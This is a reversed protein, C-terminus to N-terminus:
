YGARYLGAFISDLPAPWIRKFMRRDEAARRGDRKGRLTETGDGIRHAMLCEPARLFSRHDSHLRWWADWDVNISYGDSFTFGNLHRKNYTISPCPIPSGFSLLLRRRWVSDAVTRNGMALWILGRKVRLLPSTAVRRGNILEEYDTFCIQAEPDTEFAELTRKVFNPHYVDDQHALTVLEGDAQQLAFNWDSAIGRPEPNIAIPLKHQEALKRVNETPTSTCILLRSPRSQQLLSLLCDSLHPTDKYAVVVFQHDRGEVTPEHGKCYGPRQETTAAPNCREPVARVCSQRQGLIETGLAPLQLITTTRPPTSM